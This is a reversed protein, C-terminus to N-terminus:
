LAPIKVFFSTGGPGSECAIEGGLERVRRSVVFLGLGTGTPKTTVFPEFLRERIDAPIRRNASAFTAGASGFRLRDLASGVFWQLLLGLTVVTIFSETTPNTLILARLAIAQFFLIAAGCLLARGTRFAHLVLLGGIALGAITVHATIGPIFWAGALAFTLMSSASQCPTPM